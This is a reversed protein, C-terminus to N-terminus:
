NSWPDRGIGGRGSNETRPRAKTVKLEKGKLEKGNLGAIASTAESEKAM